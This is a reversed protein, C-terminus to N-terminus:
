HIKVQGLGRIGKVKKLINNCLVAIEAITAATTLSNTICLIRIQNCVQQVDEELGEVLAINQNIIYQRGFVNTDNGTGSGDATISVLGELVVVTCVATSPTESNTSITVKSNGAKTGMTLTVTIIKNTEDPSLAYATVIDGDEITVKVGKTFEEDDAFGSVIIEATQQKVAKITSPNIKM